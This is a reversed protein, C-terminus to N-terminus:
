DAYPNYGRDRPFITRSHFNNKWRWLLSYSRFSAKNYFFDSVLHHTYGILLGTAWHNFGTLHAASYLVPLYEWGHFILTIKSHEENYFFRFFDDRNVMLGRHFFYDFVHDIDIAIGSILAAASLSWSSFVAYLIGSVSASLAIHHRVKM